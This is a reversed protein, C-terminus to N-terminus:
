IRIMLIDVDAYRSIQVANSGLSHDYRGPHRAGLVIMESGWKECSRLVKQYISGHKIHTRVKIDGIDLQEVLQKMQRNANENTEAIASNPIYSQISGYESFPLVFLIDMEANRVKAQVLAERVIKLSADLHDLDVTALIKKQM